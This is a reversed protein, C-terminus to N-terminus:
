FANLKNMLKLEKPNRCKWYMECNKKSPDQIDIMIYSQYEDPFALYRFCTHKDKCDSRNCMAIDVM